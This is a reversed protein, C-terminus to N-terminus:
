TTSRYLLEHVLPLLNRIESDVHYKVMIYSYSMSLDTFLVHRTTTLDFCNMKLVYNTLLWHSGRLSYYIMITRDAFSSSETFYNVDSLVLDCWIFCSWMLDCLDCWMQDCWIMGSWMIDCIVCSLKWIMYSWSIVIWILFSWMLDCWIVKLDCWIMGSCILYSKSWMRHCWIVDSLNWIVDSLM